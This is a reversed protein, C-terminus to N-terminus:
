GTLKIIEKGGAECYNNHRGFFYAALMFSTLNVFFLIKKFHLSTREAPSLAETSKRSQNNMWYSLFM